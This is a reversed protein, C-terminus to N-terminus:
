QATPTRPLILLRRFEGPTLNVGSRFAKTFHSQDFFGCLDAVETIGLETTALLRKAERLRTDMLLQGFTKGTEAKIHHVLTSVGAGLSKAARPLTVKEPYHIRLWQVARNALTGHASPHGKTRFHRRIFDAAEYCIDETTAASELLSLHRMEKSMAAAWAEGCLVSDCTMVALLVRVHARLKELDWNCVLLIRALYRSIFRLANDTDHDHLYSVLRYTDTIIDAPSVIDSRMDVAEEAIRRQQLYRENRERFFAPANIGSSYTAEIAFFGLGRLAGPAIPQLSSTRKLLEARDRDPLASLRTGLEALLGERNGEGLFGGMSISGRCRDGPAVPVSVSLLGAWCQQFHPEGSTMSHIAAQRSTYRCLPATTAHSLCYACFPCVRGNDEMSDAQQDHFVAGQGTVEGISALVVCVAGACGSQDPDTGTGAAQLNIPDTGTM